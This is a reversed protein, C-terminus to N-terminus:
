WRTRLIGVVQVFHNWATWLNRAPTMSCRVMRKNWASIRSDGRRNYVLIYRTMCHDIVAYMTYWALPIDHYICQIDHYIMTYRSYIWTCRMILAAKCARTYCMAVPRPHCAPRADCPPYPRIRLSFQNHSKHPHVHFYTGTHVQIYRYIGQEDSDLM